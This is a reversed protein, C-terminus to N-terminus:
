GSALTTSGVPAPSLKAPPKRPRSSRVPPDSRAASRWATTIPQVMAENVTSAKERSRSRSRVRDSTRERNSVKRLSVSYSANCADTVQISTSSDVLSLVRKSGAGEAGGCPPLEGGGEVGLLDNDASDFAARTRTGQLRAGEPTSLAGARHPGGDEGVHVRVDLSQRRANGRRLALLDIAENAESIRDTVPCVRVLGAVEDARAAFEGHQAVVVGRDGAPHVVAVVVRRRALHEVPRRQVERGLVHGPQPGQGVGPRLPPHQPPVGARAVRRREFVHERELLGFVQDQARRAVQRVEGEDAVRVQLAGELEEGGHLVDEVLAQADLVAVLVEAADTAAPLRAVVVRAGAVSDPVVLVLHDLEPADGVVGLLRRPLDELRSERVVERSPQEMADSNGRWRRSMSDSRRSCISSTSPSAPRNLRSRAAARAPLARAGLCWIRGPRITTVSKKSAEVRVRLEKSTAACASPASTSLKWFSAELTVLPSDRCSVTRLRSAIPASARTTRWGAAPAGRATARATRALTMLAPSPACSCGVWASSSASVNRSFSPDSSPLIMEITPSMACLRTARELTWQRDLSPERTRTAPGPVSRGAPPSFSPQSTARVKGSASRSASATIISRMWCSRMASARM